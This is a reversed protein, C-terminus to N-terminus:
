IAIFSSGRLIASVGLGRGLCIALMVTSMGSGVDTRATKQKIVLLGEQFTMRKANLIANDQNQESSCSAAAGTHLVSSYCVLSTIIVSLLSMYAPPSACM